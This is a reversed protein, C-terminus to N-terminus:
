GLQGRIGGAGYTPTWHVNLYFAQPSKRMADLLSRAVETCGTSTGNKTATLHVVIGGSQTVTGTHIHAGSITYEAGIGATTIEWCLRGQGPNITLAATGSANPDGPGPVEAGPTLTLNFRKGGELVPAAFAASVLIASGLLSSVLKVTRTM